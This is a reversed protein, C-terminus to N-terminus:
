KKEEYFSPYLTELLSKEKVPTPGAGKGNFTDSKMSNGIALLFKALRPDNGAPGKLLEITQADGFTNVVKSITAFTEELKEPQFEPMEFLAKKNAIDKDKLQQEFSQKSVKYTEERARILAEAQAKSLGLEGAQTAIANLEEESLPSDDAIELEYEEFEPEAAAAAAAQAQNKATENSAPDTTPGITGTQEPKPVAAAPPTAEQKKSQDVVADGIAGTNESVAGDLNTGTDGSM